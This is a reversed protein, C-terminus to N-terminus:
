GGHSIAEEGGVAAYISGEGIFTGRGAYELGEGPGVAM